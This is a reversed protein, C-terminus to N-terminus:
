VTHPSAWTVSSPFPEHCDGGIPPRRDADIAPKGTTLARPAIRAEGREHPPQAAQTPTHVEGPEAQQDLRGPVVAVSRRRWSAAPGGVADPVIRRALRVRGDGCGVDARKGQRGTGVYPPGLVDASFARNAHPTHRFSSM